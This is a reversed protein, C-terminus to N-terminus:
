MGFHLEDVEAESGDNAECHSCGVALEITQLFLLPYADQQCRSYSHRCGSLLRHASQKNLNLSTQTKVVRAVEGIDILIAASTKVTGTFGAKLGSQPKM